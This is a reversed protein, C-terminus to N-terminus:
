VTMDIADYSVHKNHQHYRNRNNSNTRTSNANNNRSSEEDAAVISDSGSTSQTEASNKSEGMPSPCVMLKAKEGPSMEGAHADVWQKQLVWDNSDEDNNDL